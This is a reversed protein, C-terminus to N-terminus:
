DAAIQRVAPHRHVKDAALFEKIPSFLDACLQVARRVVIRAKQYEVHRSQVQQLQDVALGVYYMAVIPVGSKNRIEQAVSVLFIREPCFCCTKKSNMIQHVLKAM